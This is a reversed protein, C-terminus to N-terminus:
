AEEASVSWERVRALHDYDGYRRGKFMPHLLSTYPTRENEFRDILAKLRELSQLAVEIPTTDKFILPKESPGKGGGALHVIAPDGLAEPAPVGSFGAELLM